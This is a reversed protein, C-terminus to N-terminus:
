IPHRFRTALLPLYAFGYGVVLIISSAAILPLSMNLVFMSAYLLAGGVGSIALPWRGLSRMGYLILAVSAILLPQAIQTVANVFFGLGGSLHVGSCMGPMSCAVSGGAGITGILIPLLMTVTCFAAGLGGGYSTIADLKGKGNPMASISLPEREKEDGEMSRLPYKM